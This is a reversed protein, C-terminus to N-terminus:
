DDFFVEPWRGHAYSHLIHSGTGDPKSCFVTLSGCNEVRWFSGELVTEYFPVEAAQSVTPTPWKLAVVKIRM